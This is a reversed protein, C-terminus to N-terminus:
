FCRRIGQTHETLWQLLAVRQFVLSIRGDPESVEEDDLHIKGLTPKELGSIMNLLVTKGCQGPGLLVLFENENVDISIDDVVLNHTKATAFCKTINRLKLKHRDAM